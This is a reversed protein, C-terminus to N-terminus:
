RTSKRDGACLDYAAALLFLPFLWVLVFALDFRGALLRAPNELEARGQSPKELRWLSVMEHAPLLDSQGVGLAPLPAPPLVAATPRGAVQRPDLYQVDLGARVQEMWQANGQELTAANERAAAGARVGNHIGYVLTGAFLLLLAWIARESLLLRIELILTKM